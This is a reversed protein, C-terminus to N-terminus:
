KAMLGQYALATLNVGCFGQGVLDVIVYDYGAGFAAIKAADLNGGTTILNIPMPASLTANKSYVYLREVRASKQGSFVDLLSSDSGGEANTVKGAWLTNARIASGGEGSGYMPFVIASATVYSWPNMTTTPIFDNLKISSLAGWHSQAQWVAVTPNPNAVDGSFSVQSLITLCFLLSIISIKKSHEM